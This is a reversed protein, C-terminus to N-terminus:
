GTPLLSTLNTGPQLNLSGNYRVDLAEIMTQVIRELDFDPQWGWDERAPRDNISNPWGAAIAQRYDPRYDITFDPRVKRIAEALQAPTFSAGSLNYSTRSRIRDAPAEMIELTSRIADDIYIMPLAEDAELFCTFRKGQAAAHFIDVAYDTTGGGPDSQHGIVGPYRLSRVDLGYRKFYYQGWNEGSAKSIGYATLPDLCVDNPTKDLPAAPGFVAISSPYFVREVGEHRAVELVNLWANMNTQYTRVPKAEGSASLIAALHFIRKIRYKRVITTMADLDTADLLEFPGTIQPCLRLDSAVVNRIGYRKRLAPVLVSGLQGCAGTVLISCDKM